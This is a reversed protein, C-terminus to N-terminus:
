GVFAQMKKPEFYSKMPVLTTKPPQFVVHQPISMEKVGVGLWKPILRLVHVGGGHPYLIIYNVNKWKKRQYVGIM